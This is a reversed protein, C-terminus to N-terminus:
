QLLANEDYSAALIAQYEPPLDGVGPPTAVVMAKDAEKKVIDYDDDDEEEEEDEEPPPPLGRRPLGAM